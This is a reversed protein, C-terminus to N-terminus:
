CRNCRATLICTPPLACSVSVIADALSRANNVSANPAAPLPPSKVRVIAFQTQPQRRSLTDDQVTMECFGRPLILSIYTVHRRMPIYRIRTPYSRQPYVRLGHFSAGPLGALTEQDRLHSRRPVNAWCFTIVRHYCVGHRSCYCYFGICFTSEAFLFKVTCEDLTHAASARVIAPCSKALNM